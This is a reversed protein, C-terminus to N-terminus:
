VIKGSRCWHGPMGFDWLIDEHSVGPVSAPPPGVSSDTLLKDYEVQVVIPPKDPDAEADRAQPSSPNGPDAMTSVTKGTGGESSPIARAQIVATGGECVPVNVAGWTGGGYLTAQVRNVWVTYGEADISGSVYIFPQNLDQNSLNGITLAVDSQTVTLSVISFQCIANTMSLTLTSAGPGLPLNEVWLLGNREVLGDAQSTVGNGDTIQASVTATPDDLLGRLTLSSGSIKAGDQPWYLTLVPATVGTYDLTYTRVSTATNGALNTAHLTITNVGNTL